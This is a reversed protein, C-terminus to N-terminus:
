INPLADSRGGADEPRVLEILRGISPGIARWREARLDIVALAATPMPVLTGTLLYIFGEIGPNHGVVMVTTIEEPLAAVVRSLTQPSAEYISDNFRIELDWQAAEKLMEATDRARRAPSSLILDPELASQGMLRGMFPAEKRGVENLPRDFDAIGADAWSSKAHRLVFLRKM